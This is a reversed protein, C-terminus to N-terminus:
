LAYGVSLRGLRSVGRSFVHLAHGEGLGVNLLPAQLIEARKLWSCGYCSDVILQGKYSSGVPELVAFPTDSLKIWFGCNM